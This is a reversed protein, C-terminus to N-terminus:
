YQSEDIDPVPVEPWRTGTKMAANLQMLYALV